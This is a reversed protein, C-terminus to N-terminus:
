NPKCEINMLEIVAKNFKEIQSTLLHRYEYNTPNQQMESELREVHHQLVEIPTQEM